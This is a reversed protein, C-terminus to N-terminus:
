YKLEKEIMHGALDRKAALYGVNHLTSRAGVRHTSVVDLGAEKLSLVKAPNNTLLRVRNYGLQTMMAAAFDFRRQDLDFGLIEDADFTNYGAHQLRYARIKNAIGNGRGEQDLYLLVGGGLEAMRKVTGRLQDGCDCKLSAFLDGTLCASHMRMYVPESPDPKGILVAVQDRMGEGGRFVVFESEGVDELPVPARAVISPMNVVERRYRRIAEPTVNVLGSLQPASTEALPLTIAAPLLYALRTLELAAKDIVGAGAPAVGNLRATTHSVIDHIAAAPKSGLPIFAPEASDYGLLRLRPPALILRAEGAAAAKLAMLAKDDITEAAIALVAERDSSMVVPRGSRMEVLAREVSVVEPDGILHQLGNYGTVKESGM